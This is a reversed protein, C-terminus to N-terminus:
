HRVGIADENFSLVGLRIRHVVGAFLQVLSCNEADVFGSHLSVACGHNDIPNVAVWAVLGRTDRVSADFTDLAVGEGKSLKM